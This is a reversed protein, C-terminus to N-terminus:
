MSGEQHGTIISGLLWPVVSLSLALVLAFIPLVGRLCGENRRGLAGGGLMGNRLFLFRIPPFRVTLLQM